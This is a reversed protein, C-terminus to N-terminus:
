HYLSRRTSIPLTIRQGCKRNGGYGFVSAKKQNMIFISREYRTISLLRDKNFNRTVMAMVKVHLKEHLDAAAKDINDDSDGDSVLCLVQLRDHRPTPMLKHKRMKVDRLNQEQYLLGASFALAKSLMTAGGTYSMREVGKQVSRLTYYKDFGFLVSPQLAYQVFAVRSRGPAIDIDELVNIINSKVVEFNSNGISSSSDVLFLIDLPPLKRAPHNPALHDGHAVYGSDDTSADSTESHEASSTHIDTSTDAMELKRPNDNQGRTNALMEELKDLRLLLEDSRARGDNEKPSMEEHNMQSIAPQQPAAPNPQIYPIVIPQPQVISAPPVASPQQQKQLQMQQSQIVENHKRMDEAHKESAKIQEEMQSHLKATFYENQTRLSKEM